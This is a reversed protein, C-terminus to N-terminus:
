IATRAIERWAQGGATTECLKLTLTDEATMAFNASGALHITVNSGSTAVADAVTVSENAILTITAGNQWGTILILDVQTTGTLEFSNGDAGLTINTASAVDAGQTEQVRGSFKSIGSEVWLAYANTITANTGEIPAGEISFTAADTVTSAGTFSYTSAITVSERQKAIAGALWQKIASYDYISSSREVTSALSTLAVPSVEFEAAPTITGIGVKGVTGSSNLAPLITLTPIDSLAGFMISNATANDVKLASEFRGMLMAGDASTRGFRGIVTNNTADADVETGIAVSNGGTVSSSPGIATGQDVTVSASIGIATSHDTNNVSASWGAEFSGNGKVALLKVGPGIQRVQFNITTKLGAIGDIVDLATAVPSSGNIILVGDDRGYVRPASASNDIKLGFTASTAGSGKGHITATPATLGFGSNGNEAIIAYNATAGGTASFYGAVNTSTNTSHTNTIHAGYTTQGAVANAGTTLINLLKNTGSAAATSTSSLALLSGSSLGNATLTLPIETTATSWDWQQAYLTNDITNTADAAGLGSILSSVTAWSANGSGDSQLLKGAGENGDVYQFTGVLDLTTSPAATGIGVRNTNGDVSFTTGDVSFGDIVTSTIDLTNAGGTIIRNGALTIDTNELLQSTLAITGTNDPFTWTKNGTLTPGDISGTFPGGAATNYVISQGETISIDTAGTTNGATLTAALTETAPIDSTLAVTGTNDPLTWVKNGTLTPGDLDGTFPGGAATNYIVSQGEDMSIDTAGTSNGATLTAALTEAITSAWSAVGSGNTQLFQNADGDNVPLTLTWTGAAAAPQVLVNGSTNGAFSITGIKTGAEGLTLLGVSTGSNNGIYVDGANDIRFREIMSVAGSPTTCLVVRGPTDDNATVGDVELRMGASEEYNTGDYSYGFVDLINNNNQTITPAGTTGRARLGLVTAGVASANQSSSAVYNLEVGEIWTSHRFDRAASTLTAGFLDAGIAMRESGFINQDAKVTFALTNNTEIELINADNTGLRATAGFSNGGDTYKTDLQTQIASTVGNVYGLETSTTASAVPLGNADSELARSATIAAVDDITNADTWYALSNLVGNGAGLVDGAAAWSLVGAGNNQLFESAGGQALPLTWAHSGSTVGSNITLTFANTSNQFVLSGDTTSAEGTRIPGAVQFLSLPVAIGVGVDGSSEIRIAEANNTKIVLDQADTTGVFDTGPTTAANGALAWDTSASPSAGPKSVQWAKASSNYTYLMYVNAPIDGVALAAGNLEIAKVALSNLKLTSAGTNTNILKMVIQIGDKLTASASSITVSYTDTGTARGKPLETQAFVSLTTLAIFLSLFIKKM